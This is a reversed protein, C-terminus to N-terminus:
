NKKPWRVIGGKPKGTSAPASTQAQSKQQETLEKIKPARAKGSQGSGKGSM